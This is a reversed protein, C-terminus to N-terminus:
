DKRHKTTVMLVWTDNPTRIIKNQYVMSHSLLVDASYKQTHLNDPQLNYATVLKFHKGDGDFDDYLTISHIMMDIVMRRFNINEIDGQVFKELFYIVQEKTISVNNLKCEEIRLVTSKKSEELQKIREVVADAIYGSEFTKVLNNIKNEIDSLEDNLSMLLTTEASDDNAAKVAMEALQEINEDSMMNMANKFVIEEIIEKRISKKTCNHHQKRESCSYYYHKTHNKSTGSDGCMLSGCTGCFLKGTLLFPEEARSRAPMKKNLAMRSKVREFTDDDIIRPMGGPIRMDKYKYIGVYRENKLMTHFTNASFPSGKSSKLGRQNFSRILDAMTEGNAYREFAERVIAAKSEDIVFKKNEIKYGLPIHGGLSQTKIASERMGRTIKQSLEKSYFEAMGELVSELIVGEPADSINETASVVQVGNRKLKNKYTASDYRNRAFRDLKYVVVADFIHKESDSIMKQFQTRKDIHSFASTARDIYRNVIEYGQRACFETCVREQGEISQETQKESSYRMYLCVKM